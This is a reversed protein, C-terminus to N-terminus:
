NWCLNPCANWFWSALSKVSPFSCIRGSSRTNELNPLKERGRNQAVLEDYIYLHGVNLQEFTKSRVLVAWPRYLLKLLQSAVTTYVAELPALTCKVSTCRRGSKWLFNNKSFRFEIKRIPFLMSNRFNGVVRQYVGFNWMGKLARCRVKCGALSQLVQKM